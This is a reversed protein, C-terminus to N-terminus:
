TELCDLDTELRAYFMKLDDIEALYNCELYDNVFDDFEEQYAKLRDEFQMSGEGWKLSKVKLLDFM